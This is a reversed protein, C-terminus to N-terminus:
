CWSSCSIYRKRRFILPPDSKSNPLANETCLMSLSEKTTRELYIAKFIFDAPLDCSDLLFTLVTWSLLASQQFLIWVLNKGMGMTSKFECNLKTPKCSNSNTNSTTKLSLGPRAIIDFWDLQALLSNCHMHSGASCLLRKEPLNPLECTLAFWAIIDFWGLQGRCSSAPAICIAGLQAGAGHQIWSIHDRAAAKICIASGNQRCKANQQHMATIHM